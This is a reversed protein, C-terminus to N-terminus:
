RSFAPNDGGRLYNNNNTIQKKSFPAKFSRKTNQLLGSHFELYKGPAAKSGWDYPLFKVKIGSKTTGGKMSVMLPTSSRSKRQQLMRSLQRYKDGRLFALIKEPLEKNSSCGFDSRYWYFIMSLYVTYSEEDLMVNDSEQCFSEASLQLEAELNKVTYSSVPPCSNAGCFLTFHIRPDLKSTAWARRPDDSLFQPKVHYPHRRNARVIGHEVDDLSLTQNAVYYSVGFFFSGRESSKVPIGVKIYAHRVMINYLHIGFVMKEADSMNRALAVSDMCQLQCSGEELLQYDPDDYDKAALYDVGSRDTVRAEIRSLAQQLKVLLKLAEPPTLLSATKNTSEPFNENKGGSIEFPALFSNPREQEESLQGSVQQLSQFSNLVNPQHFPQLRYYYSNTDQFTREDCVHRLIGYKQLLVGFEVAKARAEEQKTRGNSGTVVNQISEEFPYIKLLADVGHEGTFCDNYYKALYSLKERPMNEILDNTIERIGGCTGDPLPICGFFEEGCDKDIYEGGGDGSSFIYDDTTEVNSDNDTNESDDGSSSSTSKRLPDPLALRPDVPDPKSAVEEQFKHWIRTNKLIDLAFEVHRGSRSVLDIGNMNEQLSNIIDHQNDGDLHHQPQQQQQDSETTVVATDWEEMKAVFEDCGGVYDENFFIQPVSLRGTLALMDERREPFLTLSVETYPLCRYELERKAM